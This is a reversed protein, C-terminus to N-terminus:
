CLPCTPAFSAIGLGGAVAVAEDAVTRRGVYGLAAPPGRLDTAGAVATGVGGAFLPVTRAAAFRGVGLTHVAVLASALLVAAPVDKVM